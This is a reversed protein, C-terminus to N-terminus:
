LVKVSLNGSSPREVVLHRPLFSMCPTVQPLSGRYIGFERLYYYSDPCLQSM